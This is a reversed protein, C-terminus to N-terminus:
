FADPPGYTPRFYRTILDTKAVLYNFIQYKYVMLFNMNGHQISKSDIPPPM